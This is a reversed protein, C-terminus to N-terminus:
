QIMLRDIKLSGKSILLGGILSSFSNGTRTAFDLEYGGSFTLSNGTDLTLPGTFTYSRAKIASGSPAKAFAAQLTGYEADPTGTVLLRVPKVFTFSATVQRNGLFDLLCSGTEACNGGWGAFLSDQDPAATLRVSEEQYYSATCTGTQCYFGAPTSTVSGGGDGLLDLTLSRILGFAATCNRDRDMLVAIGATAGSCDGRWGAFGSGNTPNATVPITQGCFYSGAGLFTGSGSGTATLTLTCLAIANGKLPVTATPNAADNSLLTLGAQHYGAAQPAFTVTVNCSEGQGLSRGSCLDESITFNAAGAGGLAITGLVLNQSGSSTVTVTRPPSVQSALLDPYTLESGGLPLGIALHAPSETSFQWSFPALATGNLNRIASTLRVTYTALTGLPANPQFTATRTAADYSVTGTVGDVTFSGATITASEMAESFTVRIAPLYLDPATSVPSSSVHVGTAGAPPVTGTVAPPSSDAPDPTVTVTVRAPTSEMAGIFTVYTFEDQGSFKPASTYTLYPVDGTLAGQTPYTVIRYSVATGPSQGSLTVPIATRTKGTVSKPEATLVALRNVVVNTPTVELASPFYVKAQNVVETGVIAGKLNVGFSVSGKAGAPLNGVDWSLMRTATSYSGGNNISLSTEDLNPDLKDMLFVGLADGSGTNEYELTYNLRQGPIVDGTHDVSKANPDHSARVKVAKEQCTSGTCSPRPGCAGNVCADGFACYTRYSSMGYTGTTKNCPTTYVTDFGGMWGLVSWNCEKKDETCIHANPNNQCDDFCKKVAWSWSVADGLLPINSAIRTSLKGAGNATCKSCSEADASGASISTACKICDQSFNLTEYVSSVKEAAMDPISNITCNFQCRAERLGTIAFPRVAAAISASSSATAWKGWPVFTQASRDWTFGGATDFVSYAGKRFVEAFATGGSWTLVAPAADASAVLYLRDMEAADQRTYHVATGFYLYGDQTMLNYLGALGPQTSLLTTVEGASLNREGTVRNPVYNLYPTVDFPPATMNSASLSGSFKMDALPTGWPVSLTVTVEGGAGPELTGLKWFVQNRCADDARYIGGGTTKVVDINLPLDVMVVANDLQTSLPNAYRVLYTVEEGPIIQGMGLLNVYFPNYGPNVTYGGYGGGWNRIELYYVGARLGDKGVRSTPGWGSDGSIQNGNADYLSIDAELTADTLVTLWFDGDAPLVYRFWDVNDAAGSGTYGLHGTFPRDQIVTQATQLTNNPEVDNALPQPIFRSKLTYGCFGSWLKIRLYYTGPMLNSMAVTEVTNGTHGSRLHTTGDTDYLDIDVLDGDRDQTVTLNLEGDAPVTVKYYDYSDTVGGVYYGIHGTRAGNPEVTVAQAFTNNPEPDNPLPNPKFSSQLTYTCPGGWIKIRLFYTGPMLNSITIIEVTNGTHGSLLHTTRDTDYLDIDVLDGDQSQTVTLTLEGDASVTIAWWDERNTDTITGNGNGGAAIAYETARAPTLSLFLFPLAFIVALILNRM